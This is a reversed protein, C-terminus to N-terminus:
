NKREKTHISVVYVNGKHVLKFGIGHHTHNVVFFGTTDYNLKSRKIATLFNTRMIKEKEKNLEIHENLWALRPPWEYRPWGYQDTMMGYFVFEYHPKNENIYYYLLGKEYLSIVENEYLELVEACLGDCIEDDEVKANDRLITLLESITKM